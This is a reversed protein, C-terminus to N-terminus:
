DPFEEPVADLHGTFSLENNKVFASDLYIGTSINVLMMKTSDPIGTIRAKITFGKKKECSLLFSFLVM